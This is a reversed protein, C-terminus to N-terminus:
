PTKVVPIGPFDRSTPEKIIVMRVLIFHYMITTVNQMERIILLTSCRRIYKNAM